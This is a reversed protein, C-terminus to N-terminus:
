KTQHYPCEKTESPTEEKETQGMKMCGEKMRPCDKGPSGGKDKSCCGKQQHAWEKESKEKSCDRGSLAEKIEGKEIKNKDYTVLAAKKEFNVEVKEVGPLESLKASIMKACNECCMGKVKFKDTKLSSEEAWSLVIGLFAFVLLIVLGGFVKKKLM